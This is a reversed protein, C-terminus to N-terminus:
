LNNIIEFNVSNSFNFNIKNKNKKFNSIQKCQFLKTRRKAVIRIISRKKSHDPAQFFLKGININIM